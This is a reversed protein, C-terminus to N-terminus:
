MCEQMQRMLYGGAQFNSYIVGRAEFPSALRPLALRPIRFRLQQSPSCGPQVYLPVTFDVRRDLVICYPMM